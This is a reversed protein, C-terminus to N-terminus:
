RRSNVVVTAVNGVLALIVVAALVALLPIRQEDGLVILTYDLYGPRRPTILSGGGSGDGDGIRGNNNVAVTIATLGLSKIAGSQPQTIESVRTVFGNAPQM